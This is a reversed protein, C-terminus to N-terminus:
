TMRIRARKAVRTSGLDMEKEYFFEHCIRCERRIGGNWSIAPSLFAQIKGKGQYCKPCLPNDSDGKRFFYGFAPLPGDIEEELTRKQSELDLLRERLSLLGDYASALENKLEANNTDRVLDRANKLASM